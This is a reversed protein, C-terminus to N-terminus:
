QVVKLYIVEIFGLTKIDYLHSFDIEFSLHKSIKKTTFLKLCDENNTRNRGETAVLLGSPSGNSRRPNTGIATSNRMEWYKITTETWRELNSLKTIHSGRQGYLLYM